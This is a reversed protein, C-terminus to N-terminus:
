SHERVVGNAPRGASRQQIRLQQLVLSVQTLREGILYTRVVPLGTVPCDPLAGFIVGPSRHGAVTAERITPATNKVKHNQSSGCHSPKRTSVAPAARQRHSAATGDTSPNATARRQM